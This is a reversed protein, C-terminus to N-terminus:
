ISKVKELVAEFSIESADTAQVETGVGVLKKRIADKSSAYLMKQKVKATDPARIVVDYVSKLGFEIGFLSVSRAVCEKMQQSKINLTTFPMVVIMMQSAPLLIMMNPM